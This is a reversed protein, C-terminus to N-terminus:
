DFVDLKTWTENLQQLYRRAVTEIEDASVKIHGECGGRSLFGYYRLGLLHSLRTYCMNTHPPECLGELVITGPETFILNSLGAGHPAVVMVAQRFVRMTETLAPLPDDTFLYFKLDFEVALLKLKEEIEAHEKFFRQKSRRILILNKSTGM